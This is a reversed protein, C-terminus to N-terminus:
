AAKQFLGESRDDLGSTSEEAADLRSKLESMSIKLIVVNRKYKTKNEKINLGVKKGRM